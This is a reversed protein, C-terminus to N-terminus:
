RGSAELDTTTLSPPRPKQELPELTRHATLVDNPVWPPRMAYVVDEAALAVRREERSALVAGWRSPDRCVGFETTAPHTSLLRNM